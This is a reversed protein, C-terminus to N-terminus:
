TLLLAMYICIYKLFNINFSYMFQLFLLYIGQLAKTSDTKGTPDGGFSQPTVRYPNVGANFHTVVQKPKKNAEWRKLLKNPLGKLKNKPHFAYGQSKLADSHHTLLVLLTAIFYLFKM